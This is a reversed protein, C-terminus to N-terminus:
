LVIEYLLIALGIISNNDAAEKGPYPFISMSFNITTTM